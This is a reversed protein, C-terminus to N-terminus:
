QPTQSWTQWLVWRTQTLLGQSRAEKLNEGVICSSEREKGYTSVEGRTAVMNECLSVREKGDHASQATARWFPLGLDKFRGRM